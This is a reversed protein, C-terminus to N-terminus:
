YYTGVVIMDGLEFTNGWKDTFQEFIQHLLKTCSIGYFNVGEENGIKANVVFNNGIDLTAVLNEGDALTGIAMLTVEWPKM